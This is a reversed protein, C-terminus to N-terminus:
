EEEEAQWRGTLVCTAMASCETCGVQMPLPASAGATPRCPPFALSLSVSLAFFAPWAIYYRGCSCVVNKAPSLVLPDISRSLFLSFSPSELSVLSAIRPTYPGYVGCLTM